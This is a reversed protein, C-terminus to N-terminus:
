KQSHAQQWVTPHFKKTHGNLSSKSAFKKACISCDFPREGTHLRRHIVMNHKVNFAKGCFDCSFPKEGTHIRLHDKLSHPQKFKKPCFCCSYPRENTHVRLHQKLNGKRAFKKGCYNCKLARETHIVAHIKLNSKHKFQKGCVTCEYKAKNGEEKPRFTTPFSNSSDTSISNDSNSNQIPQFPINLDFGPFVSSDLFPKMSKTDMTPPSIIRPPVLDSQGPPVYSQSCGNAYNHSMMYRPIINSIGTIPTSSITASASMYVSPPPASCLDGPIFKHEQMNFSQCQQPQHLQNSNNNNNNYFMLGNSTCNSHNVPNSAMENNTIQSCDYSFANNNNAYTASYLSPLTTAADNQNTHCCNSSHNQWSQHQFMSPSLNASDSIQPSQMM